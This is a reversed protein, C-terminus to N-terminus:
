RSRSIPLNCCNVNVCTDDQLRILIVCNLLIQLLDTFTYLCIFLQIIDEIYAPLGRDRVESRETM